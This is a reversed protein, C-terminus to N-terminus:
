NRSGPVPVTNNPGPLPRLPVPGGPRNPGPPQVNPPMRRPDIPLGAPHPGTAAAAPTTPNPQAPTVVRPPMAPEGPKANPDFEPKVTRPGGPGSMVVTFDSIKQVQWGAVEGGEELVTPKDDGEAQFMAQRRDGSILIGSLRPLDVTPRVGDEAAVAARDPRRTPSFLPRALLTDVLDDRDVDAQRLANPPPDKAAAPSAAPKPVMRSTGPVLELGIVVSLVLSAAGLGTLLIREKM